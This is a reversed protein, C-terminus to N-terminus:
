WRSHGQMLAVQLAFWQPVFLPTGHQLGQEAEIGTAIRTVHQLTKKENMSAPKCTDIYTTISLLHREFIQRAPAARRFLIM